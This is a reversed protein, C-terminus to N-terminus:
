TLSTYSLRLEGGVVTYLYLGRREAVSDTGVSCVGPSESAEQGVCVCSECLPLHPPSLHWHLCFHSLLAPGHPLHCRMVMLYIALQSSHM